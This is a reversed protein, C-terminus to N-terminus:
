LLLALLFYTHLEIDLNQCWSMCLDFLFKVIVDSSVQTVVVQYIEKGRQQEYFKTYDAETIAPPFTLSAITEAIPVIPM